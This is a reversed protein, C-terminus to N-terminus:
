RIKSAKVLLSIAIHGRSILIKWYKTPNEMLFWGKKSAGMVISVEMEDNMMMMMMMMM